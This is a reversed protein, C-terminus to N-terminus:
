PRALMRLLPLLERDVAAASLPGVFRKRIHGDRDIVYTEPVGYLGFDIGTRGGRDIGVARYPDGLEALFRRSDEPKDKYAIGVLHVGEQRALRLLIPHEVRCPACWSAFVNVVSVKGSALDAPTFTPSREDLPPLVLRPVPKNLLASPIVSPPPSWLSRFLFFALLGFGAVPLIYILRRM